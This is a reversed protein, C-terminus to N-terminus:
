AKKKKKELLLRCVLHEPTEHARLHTYSVPASIVLLTEFSVFAFVQRAQNHVWIVNTAMDEYDKVSATQTVLTDLTQQASDLTAVPMFGPYAHATRTMAGVAASVSLLQAVQFNVDTYVVAEVENWDQELEYEQRALYHVSVCLVLCCGATLCGQVLRARLTFGAGGKKMNRHLKGFLYLLGGAVAVVFYQLFLSFSVFAYPIFDTLIDVVLKDLPKYKQLDASDVVQDSLNSASRKGVIYGITPIVSLLLLLVSRKIVMAKVRVEPLLVRVFCPASDITLEEHATTSLGVWFRGQSRFLQTFSATKMPLPSSAWGGIEPEGNQDAQYLVGPESWHWRVRDGPFVVVEPLSWLGDSGRHVDVVIPPRSHPGDRFKIMDQTQGFQDCCGRDSKSLVAPIPRGPAPLLPLPKLASPDSSKFGPPFHRLFWDLFQEFDWGGSEMIARQPVLLKDIMSPSAGCNCKVCANFTLQELELMSDIRGSGDLDYRGFCKLLVPRWEDGEDVSANSLSHPM